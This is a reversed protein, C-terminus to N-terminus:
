VESAAGEKGLRAIGLTQEPKRSRKANIQCYRRYDNFGCICKVHM